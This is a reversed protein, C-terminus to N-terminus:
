VLTEFIAVVDQRITVQYLIFSDLAVKSASKNWGDIVGACAGDCQLIAIDQIAAKAGLHKQCPAAIVIRCIHIARLERPRVGIAQNRDVVFLVARKHEPMTTICTAGREGGFSFVGDQSCSALHFKLLPFTVITASSNQRNVPRVHRTPVHVRIRSRANLALCDLM